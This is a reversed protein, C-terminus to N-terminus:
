EPLEIMTLTGIFGIGMYDDVPRYNSATGDAQVKAVKSNGKRVPKVALSYGTMEEMEMLERHGKSTMWGEFMLEALYKESTLRYPNNYTYFMALNEGLGRNYLSEDLEKFVTFTKEGNPRTHGQQGEPVIFGYEALEKAIIETGERYEGYYALEQLGLEKRHENIIKGFEENLEKSDIREEMLRVEEETMGEYSKFTFADVLNVGGDKGYTKALRYKEEDSKNLITIIRNKEKGDNYLQIREKNEGVIEGYSIGEMVPNGEGVNIIVRGLIIGGVVIVVLSLLVKAVKKIISLGKGGM